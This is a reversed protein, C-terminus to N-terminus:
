ALFKNIGRLLHRLASVLQQTEQLLNMYLLDQRLRENDHDPALAHASRVESLRAKLANGEALLASLHTTDRTQIIEVAKDIMEVLEDRIPLFTDASHQPLPNFNNDVHELCPDCVRRLCYLIDTLSNAALHFWTNKQVADYYNILRMGVIEKKREATWSQRQTYISTAARRLLRVNEQLLGETIDLYAERASALIRTHSLRVHEKLLLLTQAKDTSRVMDAYVKDEEESDSSDAVHLNSRILVFLVLAIVVVMAVPGGFFMVSTVLAGLIFAAGATVFWGGVVSFVGTIRYVASERGWARDALSSGMSVMFAVYTTSLPFQLSTGIMILFGSLVLNVSARVLDFDAGDEQEQTKLFRRDVFSQVRRPIFWAVRNSTQLSARVVRRAIRSSSFIEDQSNQRSLKLTTNIVNRAKKSVFLAVAMFAGAAVLYYIPTTAPLALFGVGFSDPSAGSGVFERTCELGALSVGIFNVLDNGAFAMALSFTGFIVILKFVNVGLRHLLESLVTFVFFLGVVIELQREAVFTKFGDPLFTANGFGKVLLFGMICSCSFGGFVAIAPRLHEKYRFTFILRCLWMVITGVVFAIAVSLFIAMIVSLVKDTNVLTGYHLTGTTDAAIKCVALATTGGFLEFVMSVTTSTPMGLTNFVDIIIVDCCVVALFVCMVERYSYHVPQLVGHRAVDMMGSSTATGIIIGVAAIILLTRISAAKSGIAPPMFSVVASSVGTYMDFVALCLLFFVIVIYFTEM